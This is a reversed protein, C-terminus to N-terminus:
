LNVFLGKIMPAHTKEWFQGAAHSLVRKFWSECVVKPNWAHGERHGMPRGGLHHSYEEEESHSRPITWIKGLINWAGGHFSFRFLSHFPILSDSCLPETLTANSSFTLWSRRHAAKTNKFWGNQLIWIREPKTNPACAAFSLRRRKEWSRRCCIYPFTFWGIYYLFSISWLMILVLCIYCCDVLFLLLEQRSLPRRVKSSKKNGTPDGEGKEGDGGGDGNSKTPDAGEQAAADKWSFVGHLFTCLGGNEDLHFMNRYIYTVIGWWRKLYINLGRLAKCRGGLFNILPFTLLRTPKRKSRLGQLVCALLQLKLLPRRWWLLPCLHSVQLPSM